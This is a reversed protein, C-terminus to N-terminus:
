TRTRKQQRKVCVTVNHSSKDAQHTAQAPSKPLLPEGACSGVCPWVCGVQEHMAIIAQLQRPGHAAGGLETPTSTCDHHQARLSLVLCLRQLLDRRSLAEAHALQAHCRVHIVLHMPTARSTNPLKLSNRLPIQHWSERLLLCDVTVLPCAAYDRHSPNQCPRHHMKYASCCSHSCSCLEAVQRVWCAHLM